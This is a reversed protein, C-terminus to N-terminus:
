KNKQQVIGSYLGFLAALLSTITFYEIDNIYMTISATALAITLVKFIKM